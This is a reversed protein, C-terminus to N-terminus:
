HTDRPEDQTPEDDEDLEQASDVLGKPLTRRTRVGMTRLQDAQRVINGRGDVLRDRATEYSKHAKALGEGIGDMAEVFSVVKDYLKGARDVIHEVNQNQREYQWIREVTKLVALLTTACVPIVRKEMAMDVLGPDGRMAAFYAPELPVWMLTYDLSRIERVHEYRRTALERIHQRVSHVHAKLQADRETPDEANVFREYATLSVKSDVVIDRGEPLHVIVDPRHRRGDDDTFSAQVEYEEDKRLGSQELIRELMMEGWDGQTKSDGRLANTLATTETVIRRIEEGLSHREKSAERVDAHLKNIEVRFPDLVSNLQETSAKRFADSKSEFIRNALNEFQERLEEKAGQLLELKEEVSKRQEEFDAREKQLTTNLAAHSARFRSAEVKMADREATLEALRADRVTEAAELSAKEAVLAEHSRERDAFRQEAAELRTRADRLQEAAQEAERKAAGRELRLQDGASGSRLWWGFGAGVVAAVAALASLLLNASEM